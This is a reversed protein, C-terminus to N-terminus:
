AQRGVQVTLLSGDRLVRHVAEKVDDVTIAAFKQARLDFFNAPLHFKELYLFTATMHDNSSFYDVSSNILARKADELEDDSLDDVAHMIVNKIAEKAEELRDLSVITKVLLMGPEKDANALFSGSINYFLGSEERLQYLRSSLVGLVGGGFVQDFLILCDYDPHTRNVSLQAFGVVMQDRNLPYSILENQTIPSLKPYQTSELTQGQWSGLKEEILAPIDYGSLDGVIAIRAGQPTFYKKYANVLDQRTIKSITEKTGLGDRSYPHNKYVAKKVLRHFISNADDWTHQIDVIIQDRIKEIENPDFLAETVVEKLIDLGLIFDEKLLSITVMGPQARFSIGHTEILDTFEAASHKTTGEDLLSTIFHFLGEKDEPDYFSRAKLRLTIEIKPISNDNNHYLVTMGNLAEYKQAKPYSFAAPPKITITEAYRPPEVPSNRIRASLIREDELDSEHQLRKWHTKEPEPIPLLTGKSMVAPRLWTRAIEEAKIKITQNSEQMCTFLFQEDGTALFTKGIEYAQDEIDELLHYFASKMKKIARVLEHENIGNESINSLEDIIIQEIEPLDELKKPKCIILFLSHDFQEWVEADLDTALQLEDVLKKYLRSSRDHAIIRQLIHLIHGNKEHLGPVAFSFMVAPQSVDRYLTINNKQIDFEHYFTQKIYNNKAPIHEFYEKALKIVDDKQVDGVIVLTANNPHYHKKYFAHLDKSTVTWLDQKYGIIPHAYPHDHFASTFLQEALMATYKDRRMKLEQIVAKMESNLMDDKFSCNTMCDALIPLAEQWHQTPMNFLYGTYDYSTFANCSGSFAHIATDIDSESLTETGKFIMHEILHAIGREGTTEDKSGVNYWLQLSVKPTAHCEKILITMGNSLIYKNVYASSDSITTVNEVKEVIPDNEAYKACCRNKITHPNIIGIGSTLWFLFLLRIITKEM